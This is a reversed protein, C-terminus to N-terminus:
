RGLSFAFYIHVPIEVLVVPLGSCKIVGVQSRNWNVIYTPVISPMHKVIDLKGPFSRVLSRSSRVLPSELLSVVTPMLLKVEHFRVHVYMLGSKAAVAPGSGSKKVDVM